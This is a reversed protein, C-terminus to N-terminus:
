RRNDRGARALEIYHKLVDSDDLKSNRGRNFYAKYWPTGPEHTMDSLQSASFRGYKKWVHDIVSKESDSFDASVADDTLPHTLMCFEGRYGHDRIHEWISRFVPGNDWAEPAEDALPGGNIAWNWGNAANVLKQIYMQQPWASDARLRLFENAIAIPNHNPM